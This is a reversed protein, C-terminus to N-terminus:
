FPKEFKKVCSEWNDSWDILLNETRFLNSRFLFISMAYNYINILNKIIWPSQLQYPHSPTNNSCHGVLWNIFKWCLIPKFSISCISMTCKHIKYLKWNMSVSELPSLTHNPVNVPRAGARLQAAPISGPRAPLPPPDILLNVPTEKSARSIVVVFFFILVTSFAPIM